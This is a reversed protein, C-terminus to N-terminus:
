LLIFRCYFARTNDRKCNEAARKIDDPTDGQNESIDLTESIQCHLCTATAPHSTAVQWERTHTRAGTNLTSPWDSALISTVHDTNVLLLGTNLSVLCHCCRNGPWPTCSCHQLSATAMVELARRCCQVPGEVAAPGPWSWCCVAATLPRTNGLGPYKGDRVCSVSGACKVHFM